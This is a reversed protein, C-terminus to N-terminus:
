FFASRNGFRLLEFNDFSTDHPEDLSESSPGTSRIGAGFDTELDRDLVFGSDTFTLVWDSFVGARLALFFVALWGSPELSVGFTGLFRFVGVSRDSPWDVGFTVTFRGRRLVFSPILSLWIFGKIMQMTLTMWPWITIGKAYTDILGDLANQIGDRRRVVTRFSRRSGFSLRTYSFILRLKIKVLWFIDLLRSYRQLWEAFFNNFLAQFLIQVNQFFFIFFFDHLLFVSYLFLGFILGRIFWSRGSTPCSPSRNGSRTSSTLFRFFFCFSWFGNSPFRNLYNWWWVGVWNYTKYLIIKIIVFHM